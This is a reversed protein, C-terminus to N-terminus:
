LDLVVAQNFDLLKNLTPERVMVNRQLLLSLDPSSFLLIQAISLNDRFIDFLVLILILPKAVPELEVQVTVHTLLGDYSLAFSPALRLPLRCHGVRLLLVIQWFGNLAAWRSSHDILMRRLAQRHLTLDEAM